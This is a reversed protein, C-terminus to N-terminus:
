VCELPPTPFEGKKWRWMHLVFPHTNIYSSKPPHFQVVTDEDDWCLSKIFHMEKWNPLRIKTGQRVSVSVHEWDKQEGRAEPELGDACILILDWGPEISPVSFIGNNGIGVRGIVRREDDVRRILNSVRFSV